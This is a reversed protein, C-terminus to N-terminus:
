IFDTLYEEMPLIPLSLAATDAQWWADEAYNSLDLGSASEEIMTDQEHEYPISPTGHLKEVVGAAHDHGIASRVDLKISAQSSTPSRTEMKVKTLSYTPVSQQLGEHSTLGVDSVLSGEPLLHDLPYGGKAAQSECIAM